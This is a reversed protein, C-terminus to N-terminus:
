RNLSFVVKYTVMVSIPRGNQYGPKFENYYAAQVAANDLSSTGSSKGIVAKRVIGKWDVFAKVWVSGEINAQKALKPYKVVKEYIIEPFSELSDSPLKLQEFETTFKNKDDCDIKNIIGNDDNEFLIQYNIICKAFKGKYIKPIFMNYYGAIIASSDFEPFGSSEVLVIRRFFNGEDLLVKIIVVGKINKNKLATPFIPKVFYIMKPAEVESPIESTDPLYDSEKINDKGIDEPRSFKQSYFEILTDKLEIYLYEDIKGKSLKIKYKGYKKNKILLGKQKDNSKSKFRKNVYVKVKPQCYIQINGKEKASVLPTLFLTLSLLLIFNRM